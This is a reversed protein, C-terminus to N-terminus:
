DQAPQWDLVRLQVALRDAFKNIVPTFALDFRGTPLLEGGAGWWVAERTLRGDTVWMKVHQREPGIRQLPRQHTLGRVVFRVPPNGLGFPKLRDLERVRDISLEALTVEADIQLCPQLQKPELTNRAIENLQKRFAPINEPRITLGAAMAHGGHNLLLHSCQRLAAALDFGEISRASGRLRNGEGGILVTPRYFQQVLRSAVIGIVGIHWGERGQVIVYDKEPDFEAQVAAIVQETITQEIKQRTRNVKDLATALSEAEAPNATLLLRLAQEATELRGAANLRPALQFGVECPGLTPPCHAVTKLALLGPRRTTNLRMLGASVLVRNEGTLPVIDAITGLAVLELLTRVDFEAAPKFGTARGHKVIAHALKFALGVSCLETLWGRQPNYPHNYQVNRSNAAPTACSLQPNVFATAPPLPLAPQHHDLVIVDIGRKRLWQITETATSGCDVAILLKTPFQQLCRAVATQSLGYGEDLRRPLYSNVKLGLASLLEILLATATVGDVDYDGFVVVPENAALADFLRQVASRMHPLMFPDSLDALRPQLFKRITEPESLGRNLMCQSLLTDIGLQTALRQALLPQAHAVSWRWKM